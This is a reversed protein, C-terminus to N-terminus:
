KKRKESLPHSDLLKNLAKGTRGLLSPSASPSSTPLNGLVNPNLYSTGSRTGSPSLWPASTPTCPQSLSPDPLVNKIKPVNFKVTKTKTGAGPAHVDASPNIPVNNDSNKEVDFNKNLTDANPAHVNSNSDTTDNNDLSEYSTNNVTNDSPVDSSSDFGHFYDNDESDSSSNEIDGEGVVLPVIEDPILYDFHNNLVEPLMTKPLFFGCSYVVPDFQFLPDGSLLL